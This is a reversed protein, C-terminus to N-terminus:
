FTWPVQIKLHNQIIVLILIIWDSKRKRDFYWTSQKSHLVIGFIFSMWFDDLTVFYQKGKNDAFMFKGYTRNPSIARSDHALYRGEVESISTMYDIGIEEDDDDAHWQQSESQIYPEWTDSKTRPCCCARKKTVPAAQCKGKHCCHESGFKAGMDWRRRLPPSQFISIKIVALLWEEKEGRHYLVARFCFIYISFM